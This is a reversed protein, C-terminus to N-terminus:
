PSHFPLSRLKELGNLVTDWLQLRFPPLLNFYQSWYADIEADTILEETIETSEQFTKKSRLIFFLTSGVVFNFIEDLENM